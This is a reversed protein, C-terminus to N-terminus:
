QQQVMSMSVIGNQNKTCHSSWNLSCQASDTTRSICFGLNADVINSLRKKNRTVTILERDSMNISMCPLNRDQFVREQNIAVEALKQQLPSSKKWNQSRHSSRKEIKRSCAQTRILDHVHRM